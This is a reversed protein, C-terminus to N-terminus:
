NIKIFTSLSFHSPATEADGGGNITHTHAGSDGTAVGRKAHLYSENAGWGAGSIGRNGGAGTNDSLPDNFTHTHNGPDSTTFATQPRGTTFDHYTGVAKGNWAASGNQNQGAARFFAGRMDPVNNSGTLAAYASGAVSRGDALVWRKAGDPGMATRFQAETLLSQQISGVAWLDGPNVAPEWKTGDHVHLQPGTLAKAAPKFWEDGATASGAAPETDGVTIQPGQLRKWLGAARLFVVNTDDAWALMGNAPTAALLMAETRFHAIPEEIWAGSLHTFTRGTDTAIAEQGDIAWTAARIAAETASWVSNPRWGTSTRVYIVGHALDLARDGVSAGPSANTWARIAATDAMERVILVRWGTATREWLSNEDIVEGISGVVAPDALLDVATKYQKIGVQRWGAASKIFLSGTDGATGYSGTIATTDALLKAEDPYSLIPNPAISRWDTGDWVFGQKQLSDFYAQGKLTGITPKATGVDFTPIPIGKADVPDIAFLKGNDPDGPDFEGVILRRDSM